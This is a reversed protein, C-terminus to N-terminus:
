HLHEALLKELTRPDDTHIRPIGRIWEHDTLGPNHATFGDPFFLQPSGQIPLTKSTEYDSLVDARVPEERWVCLVEGADLEGYQRALELARTLGGLISVDVSDRFFALRLAYDVNEAGRAGHVRRAAAVLEFAPLFTSPWSPDTYAGFITPEHDALVATEHVVIHRPTGENNVLELPWPRPDLIVGPHGGDRAQRLRHVVTTAWPCHIDSWITVTPTSTM